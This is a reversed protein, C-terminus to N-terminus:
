ILATITTIVRFDWCKPPLTLFSMRLSNLVLRPPMLGRKLVVFAIFFYFIYKEKVRLLFFFHCSYDLYLSGSHNVASIYPCFWGLVWSSHEAREKQTHNLRVSIRFVSKNLKVGKSAGTMSPFPGTMASYSWTGLHISTGRGLM